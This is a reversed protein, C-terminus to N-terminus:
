KISNTRPRERGREGEIMGERITSHLEENHRLTYGIM